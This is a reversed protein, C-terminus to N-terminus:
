QALYMVALVSSEFEEQTHFVAKDQNNLKAYMPEDTPIFLEGQTHNSLRIISGAPITMGNWINIPPATTPEEVDEIVAWDVEQYLRLIHPDSSNLDADDVYGIPNNGVWITVNLGWGMPEVTVKVIGKKVWGGVSYGIYVGDEIREGNHLITLKNPAPPQETLMPQMPQMPQTPQTPQTPQETKREAIDSLQQTLRDVEEGLRDVEEGLRNVEQNAESLNSILTEKHVDRNLSKFDRANFSEMWRLPMSDSRRKGMHYFEKIAEKHEPNNPKIMKRAITDVLAAIYSAINEGTYGLARATCPEQMGEEPSFMAHKEYTEILDDRLEPTLANVYEKRLPLVFINWLGLSMRADIYFAPLNPWDLADLILKEAYGDDDEFYTDDRLEAYYRMITRGISNRIEMNDVAGILIDIKTHSTVEQLHALNDVKCPVTNISTFYMELLSDHLAKTKLTGIDVYKHFQTGVNQSEVTDYDIVTLNTIGMTVLNRATPSGIGGAGLVAVQMNNFTNIPVADKFRSTTETAPLNLTSNNRKVVETVLAAKYQARIEPLTTLPTPAPTAENTSLTVEFDEFM